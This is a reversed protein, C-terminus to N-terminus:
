VHSSLKIAGLDRLVPIVSLEARLTVVNKIFQDNVTGIDIRLDDSVMCAVYRSDILLAKQQAIYPSFAVRMNSINLAPSVFPSGNIYQGESDRRTVVNQWDAPNVVVVDPAYGGARRMLASAAIMQEIEVINADPYNDTPALAVLGEFTMGTATSGGMIVRDLALLVERRLHLDVAAALEGGSRMAQESVNAYAAVTIQNQTVSAYIPTSESKAGGEGAQVAGGTGEPAQNSRRPYILSQVGGAPPNPLNTAVATEIVIDPGGTAALSNRAGVTAAGIMGKTEVTVSLRGTKAFLDANEQLKTAFQAGATIGRVPAGRDIVSFGGKQELSLLRDAQERQAAVIEPLQALKPEIKDLAKMILEYNM